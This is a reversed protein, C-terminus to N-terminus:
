HAERSNSEASGWKGLPIGQETCCYLATSIRSVGLEQAQPRSPERTPPALLLRPQIGSSERFSSPSRMQIVVPTIRQSCPAITKRMEGPKHPQDAILLTGNRGSCTLSSENEPDKSTKRGHFLLCFAILGTILKNCGPPYPVGYNWVNKLMISLKQNSTSVLGKVCKIEEPVGPGVATWKRFQKDLLCYWFDVGLFVFGKLDLINFVNQKQCNWFLSEHKSVPPPWDIVVGTSVSFTERNSHFILESACYNWILGRSFLCLLHCDRVLYSLKYLLSGLQSILPFCLHSALDDSQLPLRLRRGKWDTGPDQSRFLFSHLDIPLHYNPRM